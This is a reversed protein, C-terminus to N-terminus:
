QTEFGRGEQKHYLAEVLSGRAEINASNYTRIGPDCVASRTSRGFLPVTPEFGVRPMSIQTQEKDTTDRPPLPRSVPQDGM